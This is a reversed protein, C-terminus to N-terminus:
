EHHLTRVVKGLIRFQENNTVDIPKYKKNEPVLLVGDKDSIHLRKVTAENDLLAAIIDGNEATPQQRIIVIDGTQIGIDEMSDGKVRLAFLNGHGVLNGEILLDQEKNEDAFIPTGAAITGVLPIARFSSAQIQPAVANPGTAVQIGRAMGPTLKIYGKRDLRKLQEHVSPAKINLIDALERTTPPYPNKDMYGIIALYVKKQSTTLRMDKSM